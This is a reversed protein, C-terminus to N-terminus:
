PTPEATPPVNERVTFVAIFQGPADTSESARALGAREAAELAAARHHLRNTIVL